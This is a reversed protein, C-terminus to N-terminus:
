FVKIEFYQLDVSLANLNVKLPIVITQDLFSEMQSFKEFEKGFIKFPIDEFNKFNEFLFKNEEENSLINKFIFQLVIPLYNRNITIVGKWLEALQDLCDNQPTGYQGFLQNKLLSNLISSKLIPSILTGTLSQSILKMWIKLIEVPIKPNMIENLILTLEPTIQQCASAKTLCLLWHQGLKEEKKDISNQISTM